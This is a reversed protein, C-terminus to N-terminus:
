SKVQCDKILELCQHFVLSGFQTTADFSSGSDTGLLALARDGEISCNVYIVCHLDLQRAVAKTLKQALSSSFISSASTNSGASMERENTGEGELLQTASVRSGTSTATMMAVSCAGLRPVHLTQVSESIHLWIFRGDFSLLEIFLNTTFTVRNLAPDWVVQGQSLHDDVGVELKTAAPTVYHFPVRVAKAVPCPM